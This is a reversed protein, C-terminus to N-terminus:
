PGEGIEERREERRQPKISGATLIHAALFHRRDAFVASVGLACLSFLDAGHLENKILSM